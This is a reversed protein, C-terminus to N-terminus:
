VASLMGGFFGWVSKIKQKGHTMIHCGYTEIMQRDKWRDDMQNGKELHLIDWNSDLDWSLLSSKM